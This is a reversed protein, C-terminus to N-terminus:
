IKNKNKIIKEEKVSLMKNKKSNEKEKSLNQLNNSGNGVVRGQIGEEVM